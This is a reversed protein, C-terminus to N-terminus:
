NVNRVEEEFNGFIFRIELDNTEPNDKFSVEYKTHEPSIYRRCYGKGRFKDKVQGEEDYFGCIEDMLFHFFKYDKCVMDKVSAELKIKDYNIGYM